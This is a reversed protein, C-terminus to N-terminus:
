QPEIKATTIATRWRAVQEKTYEGLEAPTSGIVDYGFSVTLKELVEPKKLAANIATNLQDVIPQPMGAPGFMGAWSNLILGPVGAEQVTPIGDILQTRSAGSSALARLKGEKILPVSNAQDAFMMQIRGALLDTMAAPNSRYPVSVIDLGALAKLWEASVLSTANSTAYTLKGPEAKALAILETLTRAPVSPHVVLIFQGMTMRSVPTFDKVPDYNVKKYLSPAASQSTNTTVFLTYGDPTARAVQEAALMGNAGPKNEVVFTGGLAAQLENAIVRALGDTSAGAAFPVIVKVPNAPYTQAQASSVGAVAVLFAAAVMRTM